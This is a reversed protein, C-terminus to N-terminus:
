FINKENAIIKQMDSKLPACFHYEKGYLNLKLEYAHLAQRFLGYKEFVEKNIKANGYTKDWIIPHWISAM